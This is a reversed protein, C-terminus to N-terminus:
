KKKEAKIFKKLIEDSQAKYKTAIEFNEKVEKKLIEVIEKEQSNLNDQKLEKVKDNKNKKM